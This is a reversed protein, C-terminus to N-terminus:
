GNSDTVGLKTSYEYILIFATGFHSLGIVKMM